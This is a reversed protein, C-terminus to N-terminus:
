FLSHTLLSLFYLFSGYGENEIVSMGNLSEIEKAYFISQKKASESADEYSEKAALRVRNFEEATSARSNKENKEANQLKAEATMLIHKVRQEELQLKRWEIDYLGKKDMTSKKLEEIKKTLHERQERQQNLTEKERERFQKRLAELKEDCEIKIARRCDEMEALHHQKLTFEVSNTFSRKFEEIQAEARKREREECERQFEFMKTDAASQSLTHQRLPSKYKEEIEKLERDLDKRAQLVGLESPNQWAENKFKPSTIRKAVLPQRGTETPDQAVLHPSSTPICPSQGNLAKLVERKLERKVNSVVGQACFEKRLSNALNNKQKMSFQNKECSITRSEVECM